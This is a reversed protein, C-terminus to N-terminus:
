DRAETRLLDALRSVDPGSADFRVTRVENPIGTGSAQPSLLAFAPKDLALAAVLEDSVWPSIEDDVVLAVVADTQAILRRVADAPSDAADIRTQDLVELDAKKLDERLRAATRSDQASYSLFVTLPRAGRAAATTRAAPAGTTPEPYELRLHHKLLQKAGDELAVEARLLFTGWGATRLQFKSARDTVRIRSQKFTPHLIWVVEQVKDLEADDADIWAWWRWYDNGAYEFNQSIRYSM